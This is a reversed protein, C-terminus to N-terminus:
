DDDQPAGVNRDVERNIMYFIAATFMGSILWEAASDYAGLGRWNSTILLASWILFVPKALRKRRFLLISGALGTFLIGAKFLPLQGTRIATGLLPYRGLASWSRLLVLGAIFKAGGTLESARAPVQVPQSAGTAQLSAGSLSQALADADRKTKERSRVSEFM